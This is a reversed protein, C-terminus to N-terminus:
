QVFTYASAGGGGGAQTDTQDQGINWNTDVGAKLGQDPSVQMAVGEAPSSDPLTFDGNSPDTLTIDSTVSHSGKTVNVVDSGSINSYVNYDFLNSALEESGWSFGTTGTDLLNNVVVMRNSDTAKIAIGFNYFTNNMIDSLNNTTFEIAENAITDFINNAIIDVGFGQSSLGDDSDHVYNNIFRISSGTAEMADGNTSKLESHIVQSRTSVNIADRNATGSTNFAQVNLIRTDDDPGLTNSSTATVRLHSWHWANDGGWFNGGNDIQPRNTGVPEDGRSTNYGEYQIPSTQTGDNNTSATETLTMTGQGDNKIYMKNGAVHSEVHNDIIIDLAGGVAGTGSSGNGGSTADRDITVTNTDTRVTIEYFGAVFNTGSTIHICNDVMAATFGGTVSTLTTGAATMALDTLSLQANNQDSYDTGGDDGLDYCGGNNAAGDTARYEWVLGAPLTAFCISPVFCIIMLFLLIKKM